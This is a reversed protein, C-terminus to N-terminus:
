TVHHFLSCNGCKILSESSSTVESVQKGCQLCSLWTKFSNVLLIKSLFITVADFLGSFEETSPVEYEDEIVTFTTAPTSTLYKLSNFVKIRVDTISYCQHNVVQDIATGWLTLRTIDTDDSITCRDLMRILTADKMPLEQVSDPRLVLVGKVSTIENEELSIVNDIKRFNPEASPVQEVYEFTIDNNNAADMRSRKNVIIDDESPNVLSRKQSINNLVVPERSEEFDKFLKHKSVDYCVGRRKWSADVQLGFVFYPFSKKRSKRTCSVDHIYGKVRIQNLKKFLLFM